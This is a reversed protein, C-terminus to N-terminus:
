AAQAPQVDFHTIRIPVDGVMLPIEIDPKLNGSFIGADVIRGDALEINAERLFGERVPRPGILVHQIAFGEEVPTFISMDLANRGAAGLVMGRGVGKLLLEHPNERHFDVLGSHATREADIGDWAKVLARAIPRTKRPLEEIEEPNSRVLRVRPFNVTGQAYEEYFTHLATRLEKANNPSRLFM